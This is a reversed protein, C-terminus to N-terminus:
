VGEQALSYIYGYHNALYGVSYPLVDHDPNGENLTDALNCNNM